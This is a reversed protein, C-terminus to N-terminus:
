IAVMREDQPVDRPEAKGARLWDGCGMCQYRKYKLAKTVHFGRSQVHDHGCKPCVGEGDYLNRNPYNPIWPLLFDHLEETSFVDGVNYEEMNDWMTDYDPHNKDMCAFWMAMGANEVKSTLKFRKLLYSLKNSTFRFKKKMTKLLDVSKFPSPPAMGAMLFEQNLIKLDFRDGNFTVVVEAEDLMDHIEKLMRKKGAPTHGVMRLSSYYCDDEEHWKAAWSLIESENLINHPNINQGWLGWVAALSPSIEM